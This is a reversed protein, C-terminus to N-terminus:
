GGLEHNVIDDAFMRRVPPNKDYCIITKEKLSEDKESSEDEEINKIDNLSVVINIVSESASLDCM